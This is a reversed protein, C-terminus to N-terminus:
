KQLRYFNNGAANTITVINRGNQSDPTQTVPQWSASSLDSNSHLNFGAASEIAWSLQVNGNLTKAELVPSAPLLLAGVFSTAVVLEDILVDAGAARQRFAFFAVDNTAADTAEIFPDSESVPDVWLRAIGNTPSFSIVVTYTVNPSLNTPLYANPVNATSSIGLRYFGPEAGDNSAFFRARQGPTAGAGLFNGIQTNSTPAPLSPLTLLTLKMRAYLPVSNTDLYTGRGLVSAKIYEDPNAPNLRLAHSVVQIGGPTDNHNVWIGGGVDTTLGGDFYNDFSEYLIVDSRPVVMFLFSNTDACNGDTVGVSVISGGLADSQPALIV